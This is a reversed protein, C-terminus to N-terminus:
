SMKNFMYRAIKWNGQERSFIFLERNEEPVTQGTSRILTTGKSTTRAFAFDGLWEIEDIFFQIHLQISNFVFAYADRLQDTGQATPANSPMFIGANGYLALVNEVNSANLADRYAFLLHEIASKNQLTEM